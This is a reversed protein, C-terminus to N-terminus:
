VVIVVEFYSSLYEVYGPDLELYKQVFKQPTNPPLTSATAVNMGQVLTDINYDNVRAIVQEITQTSVEMYDDAMTTTSLKITFVCMLITVIITLCKAIAPINAPAIANVKKM